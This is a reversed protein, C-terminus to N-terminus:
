KKKQDPFTKRKQDPFFHKSKQDPIVKEDPFSPPFFVKKDTEPFDPFIKWCPFQITKPWPSNKKHKQDPFFNKTLFLWPFNKM